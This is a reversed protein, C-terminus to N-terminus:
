QPGKRIKLSLGSPEDAECFPTSRGPAGLIEAITTQAFSQEVHAYAEDLRKHLPCLNLGHTVLDLPCSEIRKIPDVANVVELVSMQAAPKALRFGGGLGRRSEVLGARGLMQLVKPLYGPPVKTMRAVRQTTVADDNDAQAIAVVARLAYEATPSIM